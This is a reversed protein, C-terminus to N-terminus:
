RKCACDVNQDRWHRKGNHHLHDDQSPSVDRTGSPPVPGVDPEISIETANQTTWSLKTRTARSITEQAHRSRSDCPCAIAKPKLEAHIPLNQGESVTKDDTWPEYGDLNVQVTHRGATVRVKLPGRGVTGASKNDVRVSAGRPKSDITLYTQGGIERLMFPRTSNEKNAVIEATQEPSDEYGSKKLQIRHTGPPLPVQLKNDHGTPEKWQQGDIFVDAGPVNSRVLLNGIPGPQDARHNCPTLKAPVPLREGAGVSITKSWVDYISRRSGFPTLALFLKPRFLEM